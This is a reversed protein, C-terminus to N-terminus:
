ELKAGNKAALKKTDVSGTEANRDVRATNATPKTARGRPPSSNPRTESRSPRLRARAM